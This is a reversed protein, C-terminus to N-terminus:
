RKGWKRTGVAWRAAFAVVVVVAAIATAIVGPAVVAAVVALLILTLVIVAIERGRTPAPGIRASDTLLNSFNIDHSGTQHLDPSRRETDNQTTNM